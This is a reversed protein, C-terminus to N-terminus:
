KAKSNKSSYVSLIPSIVRSTICIAIIPIMSKLGKELLIKDKNTANATEFRRGLEKTFRAVYPMIAYTAGIIIACNAIYFNVLSKKKENPIEKSKLTDSIFLSSLVVTLAPPFHKKVLSLNTIPEGFKNFRGTDKTTWNVLRQIQKNNALTTLPSFRNIKM